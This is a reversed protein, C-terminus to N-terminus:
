PLVENLDSFSNSKFRVQYRSRSLTPGGEMVQAAAMNGKRCVSSTATKQSSMCVVNTSVLRSNDLRRAAISSTATCNGVLGLLLWVM